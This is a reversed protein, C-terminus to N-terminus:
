VQKCDIVIAPPRPEIAFIDCPVTTEGESPDLLAAKLTTFRGFKVLDSEDVSVSLMGAEDQSWRAMGGVQVTQHSTLLWYLAAASGLCVILGAVIVGVVRSRLDKASFSELFNEIVGM